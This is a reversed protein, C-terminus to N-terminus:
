ARRLQRAPETKGRRTAHDFIHAVYMQDIWDANKFVRHYRLHPFLSVKRLNNDANFENVALLEGCWENATEIGIDDLYVLVIPLYQDWAGRLADLCHTASSYYDVDISVFGIPAEPKVTQVFKAVTEQIDGVILRGNAPLSEAVAQMDNVFEGERWTEPHDRHDVPPPLGGGRDFGVVNFEIGTANTTRRALECMNRLGAGDAVGFELITLKSIGHKKATDAAHLIPWALQARIVLDFAVRARYTGCIAVPVSALLPLIPEMLRQAIKRRTRSRTLIRDLAYKWM